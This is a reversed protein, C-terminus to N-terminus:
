PVVKPFRLYFAVASKNYDSRLFGQAFTIVTSLVPILDSNSHLKWWGVNKGGAKGFSVQYLGKGGTAEIAVAYSNKGVEFRGYMVAPPLSDDTLFFPVASDLAESLTIM